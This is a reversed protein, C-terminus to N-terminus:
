RAPHGPDFSPASGYTLLRQDPGPAADIPSTYLTQHDGVDFRDLIHVAMWAARDDLVPVGGPGPRWATDAFKDVTDGSLEGFLSATDVQDEGLLHLCLM